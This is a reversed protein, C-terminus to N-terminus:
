QLADEIQRDWQQLIKEPAFRNRALHSNSTFHKQLTENSLLDSIAKSLAPINANPVLIGNEMHDTIENPGYDCDFAITPMGTATAELEVNGFGEHRSSSVFVDGAMVWEAQKKTVGPLLVRHELGYEKIQSELTKRDSGEGYITLIAEPHSASVTAFANILLDLGKQSQLRGVAVLRKQFRSKFRIKDPLIHPNYIVVSKDKLFRRWITKEV